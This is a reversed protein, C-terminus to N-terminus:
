ESKLPIQKITNNITVLNALTIKLIGNIFKATNVEMGDALNIRHEFSRGSIGKWLYDGEEHNSNGKVVLESGEVTVSIDGKDFGALAYKVTYTNDNEKIIDYPPWNPKALELSRRMTNFLDDYGLFTPFAPLLSNKM